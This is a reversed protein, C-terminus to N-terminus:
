VTVLVHVFLPKQLLGRGSVSVMFLWNYDYESEEIYTNAVGILLFKQWMFYYMRNLLWNTKKAQFSCQEQEQQM